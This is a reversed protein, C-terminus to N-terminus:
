FEFRMLIEQKILCLDGSPNNINITILELNEYTLDFSSFFPPQKAKNTPFSIAKNVTSYRLCEIQTSSVSIAKWNNYFKKKLVIWRFLLRHLNSKLKRASIGSFSDKPFPAYM